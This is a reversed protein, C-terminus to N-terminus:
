YIRKAKREITLGILSALGFVVWPLIFGVDHVHTLRLVVLLAAVLFGPGTIACHPERCGVYNQTCYIGYLGMFIAALVDGWSASQAVAWGDFIFVLITVGYAVVPAHLLPIRM